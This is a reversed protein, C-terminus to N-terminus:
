VRVTSTSGIRTTLGSATPREFGALRLVEPVVGPSHWRPSSEGRNQANKKFISNFVLYKPNTEYNRTNSALENQIKRTAGVGAVEHLVQASLPAPVNDGQRRRQLRELQNIAHYFQRSL